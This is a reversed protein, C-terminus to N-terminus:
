PLWVVHTLEGGHKRGLKIKRDHKNERQEERTRIAKHQQSLLM